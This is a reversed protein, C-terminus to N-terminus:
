GSHGQGGPRDSWLLEGRGQGPQRPSWRVRGGRARREPGTLGLMLALHGGASFGIAGIRDPDVQYKKANTKICRVAAKVDHVQAPFVNRPAFGISRLCRSTVESQSNSGHDARCGVQEGCGPGATFSWCRRFCM